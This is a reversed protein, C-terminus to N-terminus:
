KGYSVQKNKFNSILIITLVVPAVAIFGIIFPAYIIFSLNGLLWIILGTIIFKVILILWILIGNIRGSKSWFLNRTIYFFFFPYIGLMTGLSWSTIWASKDTLYLVGGGGLLSIALSKLFINRNM